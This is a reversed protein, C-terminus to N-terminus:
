ETKPGKWIEKLPCTEKWYPKLLRPNPLLIGEMGKWIEKLFAKPEEMLAQFSAEFSAKEEWSEKLCDKGELFAEVSSSQPVVTRGFLSYLIGKWIEKLFLKEKGYLKLLRLKPFM